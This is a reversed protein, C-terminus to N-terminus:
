AFKGKNLELSEFLNRKFSSMSSYTSHMARDMIEKKKKEAFASNLEKLQLKNNAEIQNQVM